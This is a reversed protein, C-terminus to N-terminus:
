RCLYVGNIIFKKSPDAPIVPWILRFLPVAYAKVAEDGSLKEIFSGLEEYDEAVGLQAPFVLAIKQKGGIKNDTVPAKGRNLKTVAFKATKDNNTDVKELM